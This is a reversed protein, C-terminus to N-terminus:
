TNNQYCHFEWTHILIHCLWRRMTLSHPNLIKSLLKISRRINIPGHMMAITSSHFVFKIDSTIKKWNNHAWCTESMLIDMKLLRRSPPSRSPYILTRFMISINIDSVHQACLLHFLIYCTVDLQNTMGWSLKPRFKEILIFCELPQKKEAFMKQRM